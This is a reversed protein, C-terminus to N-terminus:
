AGHAGEEQKLVEDRLDAWIRKYLANFAPDLRIEAVDRPRKLDIAYDGKIRAPGTSLVVVRDALAIAEELDHTIFLVTKRTEQWLELLENEMIQRTQVDLAGFPEDMLLLRPNVIWAQAIAVRKRMGGSLQHPFRDEFAALGVRKLWRRAEAAARAKPVKRFTLGLCVNDLVTRWPLLADQQFLYAAHPNIGTLTEGFVRVTGAPPFLLGAAANLLTSKGCGSPGVLAVFTGEEVALDVESMVTHIEGSPTAFRITVGEFAIAPPASAPAAPTNEAPVAM